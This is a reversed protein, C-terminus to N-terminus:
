FIQSGVMYKLKFILCINVLKPWNYPPKIAYESYRHFMLINVVVYLLLQFFVIMKILLRSKCKKWPKAM